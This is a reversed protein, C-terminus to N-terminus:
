RPDIRTSVGRELLTLATPRGILNIVPPNM